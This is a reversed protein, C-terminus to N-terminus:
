EEEVTLLLPFNNDRALKMTKKAKSEAIDKSYTGAIASGEMHVKMMIREADAENKHFIAKLVYVVFEMTTFDDNHFIVNYNKPAKYHFKVDKTRKIEVNAMYVRVIRSFLSFFYEVELM